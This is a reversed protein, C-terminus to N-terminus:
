RQGRKLLEAVVEGAMWRLEETSLAMVGRHLAPLSNGDYYALDQLTKAQSVIWARLEARTKM